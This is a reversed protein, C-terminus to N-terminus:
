AGEEGPILRPARSGVATDLHILTQPGVIGDPVLGARFQFAKVRKAMRDDFTDGSVPPPQGEVQALRDSLWAVLPESAGLQIGNRFAPPPRWLLTFEGQWRPGLESVLVRQTHAGTKLVATGREVATLAAFFHRGGDDEVKLVAPRNFRLLSEWGDKQELCRLGRSAAFQCADGDREGDYIIEWEAFLDRFAAQRSTAPLEAPPWELPAVPLEPAAAQETRVESSTAPSADLAAPASGIPLLDPRSTWLLAAVLATAAGGAVAAFGRWGLFSAGRRKGNGFVERAARRLIKKDVKETGEVYAGLLARDCIINIMRPIGGSLKYIGKLCASPFLHARGGAVELRHAVYAGIEERGLPELHYRATIRQALQRLEPRALKERLEPQGLLLIQLLKRENTELNTLLRLQELLETSLNQAEDIILVAKRGGAHTELLYGNIRDILVKNGSGGTVQIHFEECITALLEEVTVKPNLIFAIDTGAPIQELLCRCVTTKGTGVEGTLLVFGGDSRLGYLLHALGERHKESMYLYRPDPAISFPPEALGFSNRYM